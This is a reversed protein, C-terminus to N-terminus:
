RSWWGRDEIIRRINQTFDRADSFYNRYASRVGENSDARVLVIDAEREQSELHFYQEIAQKASTYGYVELSRNPHMVLIINRVNKLKTASVHLGELFRLINVEEETQLFKHVADRNNAKIIRGNIGEYYRSLLESALLFFTQQSDNARDFKAENGTLAGFIEVATAWSHQIKTRYQLEILLGNWREATGTYSVYKYVDHVGRYGNDKPRKIYDYDDEENKRQHKFRSNLIRGRTEYLEDINDFILRCGAIDHMRSLQMGPQRTLKDDITPRRKLRQAVTIERGRAHRRLTAQFTNLVYNHSARWNEIVSEDEITPNGERVADGARNVRNKSYEPFITFM